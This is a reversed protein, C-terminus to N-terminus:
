AASRESGTFKKWLSQLTHKRTALNLVSLHLFRTNYPDTKAPRLSTLQTPHRLTSVIKHSLVVSHTRYCRHHSTSRDPKIFRDLRDPTDATVARDWSRTPRHSYPQMRPIPDAALNSRRQSSLAGNRQSHPPTVTMMEETPSGCRDHFHAPHKIKRLSLPRQHILLYPAYATDALHPPHPTLPPLSCNRPSSRRCSHQMLAPLMDVTACAPRHRRAASIYRAVSLRRWCPPAPSAPVDSCATALQRCELLLPRLPAVPRYRYARLFIRLRFWPHARRGSARRILIGVSAEVRRHVHLQGCAGAGGM